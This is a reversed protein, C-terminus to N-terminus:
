DRGDTPLVVARSGRLSDLNASESGGVTFPGIKRELFNFWKRGLDDVFTVLADHARDSYIPTWMLRPVGSGKLEVYRNVTIYM